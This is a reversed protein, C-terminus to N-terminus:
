TKKLIIECSKHEKSDLRKIMTQCEDSEKDLYKAIEDKSPRTNFMEIAYRSHGMWHKDKALTGKLEEITSVSKTKGTDYCKKTLCTNFTHKEGNYSYGSFVHVKEIRVEIVPYHTHRNHRYSYYYSTFGDHERSKYGPTASILYKSGYYTNKDNGDRNSYVHGPILESMKVTGSAIVSTQVTYKKYEDSEATILSMKRGDWVLLLKGQIVGGIIDHHGMLALLNDSTIEFHYGEPHDIYFLTRGSGFWDSSRKTLGSIKFGERPINTVPKKLQKQGWGNWSYESRIKGEEDVYTMFSLPNKGAHVRVLIEKPINM